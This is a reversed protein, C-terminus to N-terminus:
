RCDASTSLVPSCFAFSCRSIASDRGWVPGFSASISLICFEVYVLWLVCIPLPLFAHLPSYLLRVHSEEVTLGRMGLFERREIVCGGRPIAEPGIHLFWEERADTQPAPNQREAYFSTIM